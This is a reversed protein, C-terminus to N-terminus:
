LPVSMAITALLHCLQPAPAKGSRDEVEPSLFNAAAPKIRQASTTLMAMAKEVVGHEERQMRELLAADSRWRRMQIRLGIELSVMAEGQSASYSLGLLLSGPAAVSMIQTAMAAATYRLNPLPDM